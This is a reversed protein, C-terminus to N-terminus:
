AEQLDRRRFAVLGVVAGLVGLGVMVLAPVADISSAPVAALHRFPSLGLVAEPLDLLGGIFDLLYAGVVIGYALPAALRPVLGVLAVGAGLALLAVPVINVGALLADGFSVPTGALATGAWAAVGAVLAVLAVATAAVAVRTALWRGRGLARVLLHEIRWSSEEERIAAVQGAAFVAVLLAVLAFTFAIVGEPTEIGVWGMQAALEVSTPMEAVAEGFDRALLGFVFAVLAAVLGWTRAPAATLRAALRAHGGGPRVRRATGSDAAGIRGAHLDRRAVAFTAAVLVAM